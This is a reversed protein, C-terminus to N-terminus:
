SRKKKCCTKINKSFFLSSSLPRVIGRFMHNELTQLWEGPKLTGLFPSQGMVFHVDGYPLVSGSPGEDKTYKKKYYNRVRTCMGPQMLLAPYQEAYEVLVIEGSDLASLDAMFRISTFPDGGGMKTTNTNLSLGASFQTSPKDHRRFRRLLCSVSVLPMAPPPPPMKLPMRHWHRLKSVSLHTPFLISNLDVAEQVHSLVLQTSVTARGAATTSAAGGAGSQQSGSTQGGGGGGGEGSM